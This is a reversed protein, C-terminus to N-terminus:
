SRDPGFPCSDHFEVGRATTERKIRAIRGKEVIRVDGVAGHPRERRSEEPFFIAEPAEGAMRLHGRQQPVPAEAALDQVHGIALLQAPALRRSMQSREEIDLKM